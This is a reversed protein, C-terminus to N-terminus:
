EKLNLNRLPGSCSSPIELFAGFLHWLILPFYRRISLDLQIHGLRLSRKPENKVILPLNYTASKTETARGAHSTQRTLSSARSHNRGERARTAVDEM